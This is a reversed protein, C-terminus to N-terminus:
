RHPQGHGQRGDRRGHHRVSRQGASLARRQGPQRGLGGRRDQQVVSDRGGCGAPQHPVVRRVTSNLSLNVVRINYQGQQELVWQLGGVVDSATASGDDNSVKVNIINVMPAVGIYKGDSDSGNGGIIGAVHTGHGIATTTNQNYDTNFRVNAVQRNVGM